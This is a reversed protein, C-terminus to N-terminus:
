FSWGEGAALGAVAPLRVRRGFGFSGCSSTRGPASGVLAQRDLRFIMWQVVGVEFPFNGFAIISRSRYHNPVAPSKMDLTIEVRQLLQFLSFDLEAQVSLFQPATKDKHFQFLAFFAVFPQHDFM